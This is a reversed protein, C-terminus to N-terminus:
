LDCAGTLEGLHAKACVFGKKSEVCAMQDTFVALLWEPWPPPQIHESSSSFALCPRQSM